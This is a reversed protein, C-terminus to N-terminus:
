ATPTKVGGAVFEVTNGEPDSVFIGRWGVWDFQQVQFPVGKHDLWKEIEPQDEKTVTLALHHLSSGAGTQPKQTSVAHLNARGAEHHFLALVNTHGGTGPKVKFFVIGTERNDALIKLGVVDRYFEVMADIDACRIAIEGIESVSFPPREPM